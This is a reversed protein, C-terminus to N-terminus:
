PKKEEEEDVGIQNLLTKKYKGFLSFLASNGSYGLVFYMPILTAKLAMTTLVNGSENKIDVTTGGIIDPLFLVLAVGGVLLQTMNVWEKTLWTKLNFTVSPNADAMAKYDKVKSLLYLVSGLLFAGYGLLYNLVM